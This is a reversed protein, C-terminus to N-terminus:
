PSNPTGRPKEKATSSACQDRSSRM